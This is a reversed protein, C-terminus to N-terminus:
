WRRRGYWGYPPPAEDTLMEDPPVDRPDVVYPGHPPIPAPPREAYPRRYPDYRYAYREERDRYGDDPDRWVYPRYAPGYPRYGDPRYGDPRYGEPRYGYPAPAPPPPYASSRPPYPYYPAEDLDAAGATPAFALVFGIACVVPVTSGAVGWMTRRPVSSIQQVMRM